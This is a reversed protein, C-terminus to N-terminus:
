DESIPCLQVAANTDHSMKIQSNWRLTVTDEPCNTTM